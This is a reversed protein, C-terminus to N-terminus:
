YKKINFFQKVLEVSGYHPYTKVHIDLDVLQMTCTGTIPDYDDLHHWTYNKNKKIGSLEYALKDDFWRTGTLKVKVINKQEGTVPYLYPTDSFDVSLGVKSKKLKIGLESLAKKSPNFVKSPRKRELSRIISQLRKNSAAFSLTNKPVTVSIGLRDIAEDIKKLGLRNELAKVLNAGKASWIEDLSSRVAKAEGSAIVEGKYSVVIGEKAVKGGTMEGKVFLVGAEQLRSAESMRIVTSTARSVEEGTALVRLSNQTFNPINLKLVEKLLSARLFNRTIAMTAKSMLKAGLSFVGAVAFPAATALSVTLSVKRWNELFARGEETQMLPDESVAVLTDMIALSMEALGIGILLPSATGLSAIGLVIALLNGGIRLALDIEQWKKEDAIAKVYIAPVLYPSGDKEDVNMLFVAALPNFYAGEDIAHYDVVDVDMNERHRPIDDPISLTIKKSEGELQQLYIKDKFRDSFALVNSDLKYNGGVRFTEQTKEAGEFQNNLSLAYLLNVFIMRNDEVVGDITSTGDMNQYLEKVLIPNDLFVQYILKTNGIIRLLNIIAGSSDKFVSFIGTDDYSKLISLHELTLKFDLYPRIAEFAFDPITEYLFKLESASNAGLIKQVYKKAIQQQVFNSERKGAIEEVLASFDNFNESTLSVAIYKKEIRFDNLEITDSANKRYQDTNEYYFCMSGALRKKVPNLHLMFAWDGGIYDIRKNLLGIIATEVKQNNENIYVFPVNHEIITIRPIFGGEGDPVNHSTHTSPATFEKWDFVKSKEVNSERLFRILQPYKIGEGKKAGYFDAKYAGTDIVPQEFATGTRM